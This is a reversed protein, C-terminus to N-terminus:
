FAAYPRKIKYLNGTKTIIYKFSCIKVKSQLYLRRSSYLQMNIEKGKDFFIGKTILNIIM